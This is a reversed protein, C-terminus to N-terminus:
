NNIWYIQVLSWVPIIFKTPKESKMQKNISVKLGKFFCEILRVFGVRAQSVAFHRTIGELCQGNENM